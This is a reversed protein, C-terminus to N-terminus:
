SFMKRFRVFVCSQCITGRKSWSASIYGSHKYILLHTCTNPRAMHLCVYVPWYLGARTPELPSECHGKVRGNCTVCWRDSILVLFSRPADGPLSACSPPILREVPCIPPQVQRRIGFFAPWTVICKLNPPESFWNTQGLPLIRWRLMIVALQCTVNIVKVETM